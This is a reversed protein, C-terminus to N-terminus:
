MESSSIPALLYVPATLQHGLMLESSLIQGMEQPKDLLSRHSTVKGLEELKPM